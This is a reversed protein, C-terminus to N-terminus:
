SPGVPKVFTAQLGEDGAEYDLAVEDGDQLADFDLGGGVANRHFYVEEGDDTLAFGHDRERVVRDIVARHPPVPPTEVIADRRRGRLRKVQREFSRLAKRLALGFDEASERVVLEAGRAQCRIEVQRPATRHHESPSEVDIWLDILDRHKEGLRELRRAADEREPEDIGQANRWHIEM